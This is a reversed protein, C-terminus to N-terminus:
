DRFQKGYKTVQSKQKQNKGFMRTNQHRTASFVQKFRLPASAAM